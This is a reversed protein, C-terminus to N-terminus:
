MKSVLVDQQDEPKSTCVLM